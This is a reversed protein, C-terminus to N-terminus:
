VESAQKAQLAIVAAYAQGLALGGDNVPVQQPLNAAGGLGQLLARALWRNQLAGGTLVVQAIGTQQRAQDVQRLTAAAITAHVRTAIQAPATGCRLDAVVARTLPRLDIEALAPSGDTAGATSQVQWPYPEVPAAAALQELEIAVQAEFAAQSRGVVLSGIADFYRGVGRAPICHFDAELMRLVTARQAPDIDRLGPIWTAIEAAEAGMADFLLALGQRWVTRIAAEGGPLRLPRLSALRQVHLGDVCLIEGGWSTGDHGWGSGDFAVGIVPGQLHLEAIAALVHATHHQVAIRRRAPRKQAYRTSLYDPHLDHAIVQPHLRLLDQLGEIERQWAQESEVTELDGLHPSLYARDECVICVTNKLHGGVALIPEPAAQPLRLPRPAFGRARRLIQPGQSTTQVVSDEVRRVIARNHILFGDVIAGLREVAGAVDIEIPEAARNGSTMVLPRAVAQSILRHLPTYPLMLGVRQSSGCVSAALDSDRRPLLVIPCAPQGLAAIAQDDLVAYSAAMTQDRVLVAFPKADRHKRARLTQVASQQSADCILHFGGLGMVGLIKGARLQAAATALPDDVAVRAGRSDTYTLQPGCAPCALTQAHWRRDEPTRYRAACAPCLPFAALSTYERDFPLAATISYRPGCATCSTFAYGAFPSSADDLDQSCAACLALDPPLPLDRDDDARSDAVVFEPAPGPPLPQRLVSDVRAPDPAGHRLLAELADIAAQPGHTEVWVASSGNRVQGGLGLARASRAVWPRFGVGQVVGRIEFRAGCPDSAHPLDTQCWAALFETAATLAAQTEASLAAGLEFDRGRIALCWAPPPPGLIRQHTELVASPSMAHSSHTADRQVTVRAFSFPPAARISADVFVVAQRGQLDLAHEIQLQFDTLLEVRGARLDAALRTSLQDVLLPGVADDGRSPNGVGVILLPAPSM